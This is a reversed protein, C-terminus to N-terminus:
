SIKKEQIIREKTLKGKKAMKLIKGAMETKRGAATATTTTQARQRWKQYDQCNTSLVQCVSLLLLLLLFFSLPFFSFSFNWEYWKGSCHWRHLGTTTTTTTVTTIIM